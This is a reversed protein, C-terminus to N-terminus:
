RRHLRPRPLAVARPPLPVSAPDSPPDISGEQSRPIALIYVIWSRMVRSHHFGEKRCAAKLNSLIVPKVSVHLRSDFVLERPDEKLEEHGASALIKAGHRHRKLIYDIWDRIVSSVDRKHYLCTAQLADLTSRKLRLQLRTPTPYKPKPANGRRKRVMVEGPLLHFPRAEKKRDRQAMTFKVWRQIVREPDVGSDKCAKRFARLRAPALAISIRSQKRPSMVTMPLCQRSM